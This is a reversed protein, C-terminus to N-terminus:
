RSTTPMIGVWGFFDYALFIGTWWEEVFIGEPAHLLAYVLTTPVNFFPVLGPNYEYGESDIQICIWKNQIKM